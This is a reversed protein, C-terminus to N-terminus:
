APESSRLAKASHTPQEGANDLCRTARYLQNVDLNNHASKRVAIRQLLEDLHYRQLANRACPHLHYSCNDLHVRLSTMHQM